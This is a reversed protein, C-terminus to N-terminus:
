PLFAAVAAWGALGILLVAWLMRSSSIAEESSGIKYGNIMSRVLNERHLLGSVVVGAVHLGVVALMTSALVEHFEELWEGGLEAYAAWGSGAAAFGLLILLYIAYSGAPNHGVWHSSEGRLLGALYDLAQRPSFLFSGFRAYRTGAIGWFIRFALV